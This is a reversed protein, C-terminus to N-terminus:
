RLPQGPRVATFAERQFWQKTLWDLGGVKALQNILPWIQSDHAMIAKVKTALEDGSLKLDVDLMSDPVANLPVQHYIAKALEDLVPLVQDHWEQTLAAQVLWALSQNNAMAQWACDAGARHDEHGTLGNERNFTVVATPHFEAIIETLDRTIAAKHKAAEGDPCGELFVVDTIGALKCALIEEYHRTASQNTGNDGASDTIIVMKVSAGSEVAKMLLGLWNMAADDAHLAVSLIRPGLDKITLM